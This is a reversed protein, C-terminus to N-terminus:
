PDRARRRPNTPWLHGFLNRSPLGNKLAGDVRESNDTWWADAGELVRPLYHSWCWARAAEDEAVEVVQHEQAKRLAGRQL